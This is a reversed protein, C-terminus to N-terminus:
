VAGNVVRLTPRSWMPLTRKRPSRLVGSKANEKGSLVPAIAGGRDDNDVGVVKMEEEQQNKLGEDYKKELVAFGGSALLDSWESATTGTAKEARLGLRVALPRRKANAKTNERLREKERWKVEKEQKRKKSAKTLEDDGELSATTSGRKKLKDDRWDHRFVSTPRLEGLTSPPPLLLAATIPKRAHRPVPLWAIKQSAIPTPQPIPYAISTPPIPYAGVVLQAARLVPDRTQSLPAQDVPTQVSSQVVAHTARRRTPSMKTRFSLVATPLILSNRIRSGFSSPTPSPPTPYRDALVLPRMTSTESKVEQPEPRASFPSEPAALHEDVEHKKVFCGMARVVVKPLVVLAIYVLLAFGVVIGVLRMVHHIQAPTYAHLLSIDTQTTDTGNHATSSPNPDAASAIAPM